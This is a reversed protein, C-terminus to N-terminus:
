LFICVYMSRETIKVSKASSYLLIYNEIRGNSPQDIFQQVIIKESLKELIRNLVAISFVFM